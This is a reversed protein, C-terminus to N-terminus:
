LTHDFYCVTKTVILNKDGGPNDARAGPSCAYIFDQLRLIDEIRFCSSWNEGSKM